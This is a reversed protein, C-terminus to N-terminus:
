PKSEARNGAPVRAGAGSRAKIMRRPQVQPPPVLYRAVQPHDLRSRVLALV